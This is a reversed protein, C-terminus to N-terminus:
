GLKFVKTANETTAQAVVDPGVGMCAAIVAATVAVSCPENRKYGCHQFNEMNLSFNAVAEQTEKPLKKINPYMYPADSEVMLRDLPILRQELMWQVGNPRKDKCLFGTLGIYFGMDLYVRAEEATGTFCHIVVTVLKAGVPSRLIEVLAQHAEREHLFLPKQLRCALEVQRELVLKQQEQPSFNRNFDLGCEGVAVCEPSAALKELEQLSDDTWMKADHPHIGATSYLAGPHARALKLADRSARLSTGTVMIKQVSVDRARQLVAPLDRQFCRNTLNAGIDVLAPLM